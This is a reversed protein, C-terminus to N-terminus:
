PNGGPNPPLPLDVVGDPTWLLLVRRQQDLTVDVVEMNTPVDVEVPLWGRPDSAVFLRNRVLQSHIPQSLVLYLYAPQDPDFVLRPPQTPRSALFLGQNFPQWSAGGNLTTYVGHRGHAIFAVDANRPHVVLTRVEEPGGGARAPPLGNSATTWHLGGDASRYIGKRGLAAYVVNPSGEAIAVALPVAPGATPPPLAVWFRGGDRTRWLGDRRGAIAVDADAPDVALGLVEEDVRNIPRRAWTQGGDDSVFLGDPSAGYVREPRSPNGKVHHPTRGPPPVRRGAPVPRVRIEPPQGAFAAPSGVPSLISGSLFLLILVMAQGVRM